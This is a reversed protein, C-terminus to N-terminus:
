PKAKEEADTITPISRILEKTYQNKPSEFVKKTKNMEVIKGNHMVITKDSINRVVALDHTIFIYTLNLKEKIELLLNLIKLQILVDLASTPEDFIIIEPECALARAISIRQRQGGSLSYPHRELFNEDLDVYNLLEIIRKRIEKKSCINHIKLPLELTQYITKKPNLSSLPNQQVFQIKKRLEKKNFDLESNEFKISGSTPTEVGLILNAITTKGSGSEGVISVSDNKEIEFSVDDVAVVNTLGVKFVKYLNKISLLKASM